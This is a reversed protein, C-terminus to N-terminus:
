GKVKKERGTDNITYIEFSSDWSSCFSLIRKWLQAGESGRTGVVGSEM